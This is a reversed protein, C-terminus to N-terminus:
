RLNVRGALGEAARRVVRPRYLAAVLAAVAAALAILVWRGYRPEEVLLRPAARVALTWGGLAVAGVLLERAPLSRVGAARVAAAGALLVAAVFIAIGAAGDIGVPSVATPVFSGDLFRDLAHGDWAALPTTATYVLMVAAGGLAPGAVAGPFSRLAVALPIALFPIVPILHRPGPSAGGFPNEVSASNHLFYALAVAAIAAVEARRGRRWLLVGGVIAPLL